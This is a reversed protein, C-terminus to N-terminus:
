SELSARAPRETADRAADELVAQVADRGVLGRELIAQLLRDTLERFAAPPGADAHLAALCQASQESEHRRLERDDLRAIAAALWADENETVADDLGGLRLMAATQRGRMRRGPLTVPALGVALTDLSTQGGSFLFTDLAVKANSLRSLFTPRDSSGYLILRDAPDVGYPRWCRELLRRLGIETTTAVALFTALRARPRERLLRGLARIFEPQWKFPSQACVFDIEPEGPPRAFPPPAPFRTGLGPLRVLRESYHSDADEPEVAEASIFADVSALASSAPHGWLAIQVPALRLAALLNVVPEMGVEPFLCIHPRHTEIFDLVQQVARHDNPVNLVAAARAALRETGADRTGLAVLLLDIEGGREFLTEYLSAFYNHVTCARLHASVIAVRPKGRLSAALVPRQLPQAVSVVFRAWGHQWPLHDEVQYAVRFPVASVIAPPLAEQEARSALYEIQERLDALRQERAQESPYLDPLRLIAAIDRPQLPKAQRVRPARPVRPALHPATRCLHLDVLAAYVETDDRNRTLTGGADSPQASPPRAHGEPMRGSNTLAELVALAKLHPTADDGLGLKRAQVLCEQFRGTENAAIAWLKIAEVREEGAPRLAARAAHREARQWDGIALSLKAAQLDLMARPFPTRLGGEVERSLLRQLATHPSAMRALVEAELAALVADFSPDPIRRLLEQAEAWRKGRVAALLADRLANM